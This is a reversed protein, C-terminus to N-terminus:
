LLYSWVLELNLDMRTMCVYSTWKVAMNREDDPQICQEVKYHTDKVTDLTHTDKMTNLAIMGVMTSIAAIAYNSFKNTEIVGWSDGTSFTGGNLISTSAKSLRVFTLQLAQSRDRIIAWHEIRLTINKQFTYSPM